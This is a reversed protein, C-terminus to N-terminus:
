KGRKDVSDSVGRAVQRAQMHGSADSTLPVVPGKAAMHPPKLGKGHSRDFKSRVTPNAGGGSDGAGRVMKAM